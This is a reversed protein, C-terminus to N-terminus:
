RAGLFEAFTRFVGTFAADVAARGAEQAPFPNEHQYRYPFDLVRVPVPIDRRSGQLANIVEYPPIVMDQELAIALMRGSLRRFQAEREERMVSYNLMSRFHMGEPHAASLYHRLRADRQLHSELHEVLYSYLAVNCESDLIFRTVPTMRNFVAGGCFLGLRSGEFLGDPNTMMLIQALLCGISYALMDVTAGPELLPHRDARIERLFQVVDCFTELGSWIFRQPQVQLRTSIAVNSLSSGIVEPFANRREGSIRHMLRPDSWARPARNMHFAIPFLVVAKGTSQALRFAWPLYKSWDKENLGHFLLLVGRARGAGDGRFVAYRFTQNEGIRSDQLNLFPAPIPGAEPPAEPEGPLQGHVACSYCSDGPLIHGSGSTFSLHAVRIGGPLRLTDVGAHVSDKLLQHLDLYDM